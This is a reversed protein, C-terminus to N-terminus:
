DRISEARLIFKDQEIKPIDNWDILATVGETDALLTGKVAACALTGVIFERRNM